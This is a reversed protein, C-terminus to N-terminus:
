KIYNKLESVIEDKPDLRTAIEMHNKAEEMNGLNLYCMIINTCIEVSKTAEFAKKFYLIAREYDQLSAYNIGYENIVEILGDDITFAENLYYIAKEFNELNRYAVAVYYFVEASDTFYEILPLLIKLAATPDEDVLMKGKEYQNISSLSQKFEIVESTEKGGLSIYLNLSHLAGQFDKKDRLILSEYLYPSSFGETKKGMDILSLEEFEFMEDLSRLNELILYAKELNENSQEITILGKLLIYAEELEDDSVLNAIRGKIFYTSEELSKLINKYENNYRFESDAGLVYFMGEILHKLPINKFDEGKEVNDAVENAKIPVYIGKKLICEGIKTDAKIEIFLLKSLKENFRSKIDM